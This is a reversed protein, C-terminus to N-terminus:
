ADEENEGSNGLLAVGERFERCIKQTVSGWNPLSKPAPRGLIEFFSRSAAYHIPEGKTEDWLSAM